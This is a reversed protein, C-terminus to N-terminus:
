VSTNNMKVQVLVGGEETGEIKEVSGDNREFYKTVQQSANGTNNKHLGRVIKLLLGRSEFSQLFRTTFLKETANQLLSASGALVIFIALADSINEIQSIRMIKGSQLGQYIIYWWIDSGFVIKVSKPDGQDCAGPQLVTRLAKIQEKTAGEVHIENRSPNCFVLSESETWTPQKSTVFFLEDERGCVLDGVNLQIKNKKIGHSGQCCALRRYSTYYEDFSISICVLLRASFHFIPSRESIINVQVLSTVFAALMRCWFFASM